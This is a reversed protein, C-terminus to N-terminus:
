AEEAIRSVGREDQVVTLTQSFLAQMDADQSVILVSPVASEAFEVLTEALSERGDEDLHDTVEDMVAWGLTGHIGHIRSAALTMTLLVGLDLRRRQGGSLNAYPVREGDKFIRFETRERVEGRQTESTTAFQVDYHGRTLSPFVRGREQNFVAALDDMLLSQIGQKGMAAEWYTAMTAEADAKSARAEAAVLNGQAAELAAAAQQVTAAHPSVVGETWTAEKQAEQVVRDAAAERGHSARTARDARRTLQASRLQVAAQARDKAQGAVTDDLREAEAALAERRAARTDRDQVAKLYLQATDLRMRIVAGDGLQDVADHAEAFATSALRNREEADEAEVLATRAAAEAATHAARAREQVQNDPLPQGCEPCTGAFAQEARALAVELSSIATDSARRTNRVEVQCAALHAQAETEKAKAAHLAATYEQVAGAAEDVLGQAAEATVTAPPDQPRPAAAAQATELAAM